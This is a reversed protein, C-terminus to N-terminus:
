LRVGVHVERCDRVLVLVIRARGDSVAIRSGEDSEVNDLVVGIAVPLASSLFFSIGLFFPM